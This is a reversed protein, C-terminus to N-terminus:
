LEVEMAFRWVGDHNVSLSDIKCKSLGVKNGSNIDNVIAELINVNKRGQTEGDILFMGKDRLNYNNLIIGEPFLSQILEFSKGYEFRSELSAGVLKAEYKIQQSVQIDSSLTMFNALSSKYQSAVNKLRQNAVLNMILVVIGGLLWVGILATMTKKVIAIQKNKRAQFKAQSPLLNLSM